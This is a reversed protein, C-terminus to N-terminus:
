CIAVVSRETSWESDKGCVQRHAETLSIVSLVAALFIQAM